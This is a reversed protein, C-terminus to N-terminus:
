GFAEHRLADLAHPDNVWALDFICVFECHLDLIAVSSRM